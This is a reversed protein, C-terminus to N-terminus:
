FSDDQTSFLRLCKSSEMIKALGKIYIVNVYITRAAGKLTRKSGLEVFLVSLSYM